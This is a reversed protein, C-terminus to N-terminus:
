LYKKMLRHYAATVVFACFCLITVVISWGALDSSWKAATFDFKYLADPVEALLIGHSAAYNQICNIAAQGTGTQGEQNCTQLAENYLTGHNQGLGQQQAAQLREYTYQLQIPPRTANPGSALSTNMHSYVHVQLKKLAGEVDGNQKDAQFVASRLRGMEINNHQLAKVAVFGWLVALLLFYWPHVHRGYKWIHHLKGKDM